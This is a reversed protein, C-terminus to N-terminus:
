IMRKNNNNNWRKNGRAQYPPRSRYFGRNNNMRFQPKGENRNARDTGQMFNVVMDKLERIDVKSALNKKYKEQDARDVDEESDEDESVNTTKNVVESMKSKNFDRRDNDVEKVMDRFENIDSFRVGKLEAQYNPTMKDIILKIVKRENPLTVESESYFKLAKYVFVTGSENSTQKLGM